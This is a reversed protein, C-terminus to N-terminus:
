VVLKLNRREVRDRGGRKAAYLAQDATALVREFSSGEGGFAIGASVTCRVDGEETLIAQDAFSRRVSQAVREARDATANALVVVFEEGGLRAATDGPSLNAKMMVAFIRLAQDGTAHGYRDNLVKFHDLDFLIVATLAPVTAAGYREFLARRNLLGTLQDTVSDHRHARAIRWQNLALSLAGIGTMGVIAIVINVDEAWNDPPGDLVLRPSVLLLAACAIFSLGIAGYLAALAIIPAPVEARCRWYERASAFVLVAAAMNYLPFAIGDYGLGMPPLVALFTAATSATVHRIPSRRTRFQFSAGFLVSLGALLLSFTFVGILPSPSHVYYDYAVVNAVILVVGISWTLLFREKPASLWSGFMTVALCAGSFGIALLLSNYDLLM